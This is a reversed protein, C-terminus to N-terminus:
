WNFGQTAFYTVDLKEFDILGGRIQLVFDLNKHYKLLRQM